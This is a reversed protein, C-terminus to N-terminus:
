PFKRHLRINWFLLNEQKQRALYKMSFDSIRLTDCISLEEKETHHWSYLLKCVNFTKQLQQLLVLRMSTHTRFVKLHCLGSITVTSSCLHKPTLLCKSLIFSHKIEESVFLCKLLYWCLLILCLHNNKRKFIM